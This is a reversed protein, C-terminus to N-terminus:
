FSVNLLGFLFSEGEGVEFAHEDILGEVKGLGVGIIQDVVAKLVIVRGGGM